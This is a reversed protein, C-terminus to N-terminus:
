QEVLLLVPAACTIRGIRCFTANHPIISCSPHHNECHGRGRVKPLFVASTRVPTKTYHNDLVIHMHADLMM